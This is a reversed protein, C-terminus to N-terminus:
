SSPGGLWRRNCSLVFAAYTAIGFYVIDMPSLQEAMTQPVQSYDVKTIAVFYHAHMAMALMGIASLFKALACGFLTLLVGAIGFNLTVGNGVRHIVFGTAGGVAIALVPYPTPLELTSSNMTFASWMIAIGIATTGGAALAMWYHTTTATSSETRIPNTSPAAHMFARVFKQFEVRSAEPARALLDRLMTLEEPSLAGLSALTRKAQAEDRARILAVITLLSIERRLVGQVDLTRLRALHQMAQTETGVMVYHRAVTLNKELYASM